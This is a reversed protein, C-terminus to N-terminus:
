QVNKNSSMFLKNKIKKSGVEVVARQVTHNKDRETSMVESQDRRPYKKRLSAIYNNNYAIIIIGDLENALTNMFGNYVFLYLSHPSCPFTCSAM